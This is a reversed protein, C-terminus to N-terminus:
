VKLIVNLVFIPNERVPYTFYFCRQLVLKGNKWFNLFYGLNGHVFIIDSLGFYKDNKRRM